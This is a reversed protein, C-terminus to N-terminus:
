RSTPGLRLWIFLNCVNGEQVKLTIKLKIREDLLVCLRSALDSFCRVKTTHRINKNCKLVGLTSCKM